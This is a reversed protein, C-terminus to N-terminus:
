VTLFRRSYKVKIIWFVMIALVLFVPIALFEIRRIAEPLLKAQGLFFAATAMFLPFFMRWLHRFLRKSGEAGNRKIHLLDSAACFLAIGGFAVFAQWGFGGIEGEPSRSAVVTYAM